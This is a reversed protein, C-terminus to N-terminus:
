GISTSRRLVIKTKEHTLFKSPVVEDPLCSNYVISTHTSYYSGFLFKVNLGLRYKVNTNIVISTAELFWSFFQLVNSQSKDTDM